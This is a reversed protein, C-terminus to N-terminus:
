GFFLNGLALRLALAGGVSLGGVAVESLLSWAVRHLAGDAARYPGDMPHGSVQWSTGHGPLLPTSVSYGQATLYEAWPRMWEPSGGLGHLLLVGAGADSAPLGAPGGATPDGAMNWGGQMAVSRAPAVM